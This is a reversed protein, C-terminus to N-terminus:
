NRALSPREVSTHPYLPPVLISRQDNKFWAALTGNRAATIVKDVGGLGDTLLKEMNICAQSPPAVPQPNYSNKTITPGMRPDYFQMYYKRVAEWQHTVVEVSGDDLIGRGQDNVRLNKTARHASGFWADNGWPLLGPVSKYDDSMLEVAEFWISVGTVAKGQIAASYFASENQWHGPVEPGRWLELVPEGKRFGQYTVGFDHVSAPTRQGDNPGSQYTTSVMAFLFNRGIQNRLTQLKGDDFRVTSSTDATARALAALTEAGDDNLMAYLNQHHEDNMSIFRDPSSKLTFHVSNQLAIASLYAPIGALGFRSIKSALHDAQKKVDLLEAQDNDVLAHKFQQSAAYLDRADNDLFGQRVEEHMVVRIDALQQLILEQNDAIRSIEDAIGKLAIKTREGDAMGAVFEVLAVLAIIPHAAVMYNAIASIQGEAEFPKIMPGLIATAATGLGLKIADRRKMATKRDRQQIDDKYIVKEAYEQEPYRAVWKPFDVVFGETVRSKSSCM